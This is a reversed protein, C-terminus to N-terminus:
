EQWRQEERVYHLRDWQAHAKGVLIGSDDLGRLPGTVLEAPAELWATIELGRPRNNFLYVALRRTQKRRHELDYMVHRADFSSRFAAGVGDPAWRYLLALFRAAWEAGHVPFIDDTLHHGLEHLVVPERRAWRDPPLQLISGERFYRAPSGAPGEEVRVNQAKEAACVAKCFDAPNDVPRLLRPASAAGSAEEQASLTSEAAGEADYVKRRQSDQLLSSM